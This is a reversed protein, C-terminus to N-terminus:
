YVVKNQKKEIAIRANEEMTIIRRVATDYSKLAIEADDKAKSITGNLQGISELGYRHVAEIIKSNEGLWAEYFAKTESYELIATDLIKFENIYREIDATIQDLSKHNEACIYEIEDHHKEIVDIIDTIIMRQEIDIATRAKEIESLLDHLKDNEGAVKEKQKRVQEIEAKLQENEEAIATVVSESVTDYIAKLEATENQLSQYQTNLTRLEDEKALLEAEKAEMEEFAATTEKIQSETETITKGISGNRASPDLFSQGAEYFLCVQKGVEGYAAFLRRLGFKDYQSFTDSSLDVYSLLLKATELLIINRASSTNSEHMSDIQSQLLGVFTKDM